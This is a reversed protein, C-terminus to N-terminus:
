SEFNFNRKLNENKYVFGKHGNLVEIQDLRLLWFKIKKENKKQPPPTM